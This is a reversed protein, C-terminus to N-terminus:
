KALTKNFTVNKRNVSFQCIMSPRGYMWEHVHVLLHMIYALRPGYLTGIKAM